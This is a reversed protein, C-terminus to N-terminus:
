CWEGVGGNGPTLLDVYPRPDLNREDKLELSHVACMNREEAFSPRACDYKRGREASAKCEATSWWQLNQNMRGQYVEFHLMGCVVAEGLVQGKAITSGETIGKLSDLGIEGYNFTRDLSPHYVFVAGAKKATGTNRCTLFNRTIKTVIGDTVSVVIGQGKSFLDQGSHCRKKYKYMDSKGVNRGTGYDGRTNHFGSQKLPFCLKPSSSDSLQPPIVDNQAGASRPLCCYDSGPCLGTIVRSSGGCQDKPICSGQVYGQRCGTGLQVPTDRKIEAVDEGNDEVEVQADTEVRNAFEFDVDDRATADAEGCQRQQFAAAGCHAKVMALMEDKVELARKM